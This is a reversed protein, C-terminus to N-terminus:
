NYESYSKECHGPSPCRGRVSSLIFSPHAVHSIFSQEAKSFSSIPWLNWSSDEPCKALYFSDTVCVYSFVFPAGDWKFSLIYLWWVWPFLSFLPPQWPKLPPPLPFNNSSYPPLIPGPIQWVVFYLHNAIHYHVSAAKVQIVKISPHIPVIKKLGIHNLAHHGCLLTWM